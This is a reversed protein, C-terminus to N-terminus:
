GFPVCAGAAAQWHARGFPIAEKGRWDSCALRFGASNRRATDSVSGKQNEPEANRFRHNYEQVAIFKPWAQLLHWASIKTARRLNHGSDDLIDPPPSGAESFLIRVQLPTLPQPYQM